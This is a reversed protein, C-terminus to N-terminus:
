SWGLQNAKWLPIVLNGSEGEASKLWVESDDDILSEPVWQEDGEYCLLLAKTTKRVVM